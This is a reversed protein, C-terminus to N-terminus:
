YMKFDLGSIRMDGTAIAGTKKDIERQATDINRLGIESLYSMMVAQMEDTTMLTKIEGQTLTFSALRSVGTENKISIEYKISKEGSLSEQEKPDSTTVSYAEKPLGLDFSIKYPGTTVSDQVAICPVTLLALFVVIAILRM